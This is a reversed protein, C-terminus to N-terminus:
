QQRLALDDSQGSLFQALMTKQHESSKFREGFRSQSIIHAPVPPTLWDIWPKALEDTEVDGGIHYKVAVWLLWGEGVPEWWLRVERINHQPIFVADLEGIWGCVLPIM